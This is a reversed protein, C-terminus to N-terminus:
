YIWNPKEAVLADVTDRLWPELNKVMYFAPLLLNDEASILGEKVATKVLDTNPYIRIGLTFKLADLPLTDVFFLSEEVTERSEGPGGLMLFGMQRIGHDAFLRCATRIEERGFRKNMAHLINEAGSEFGLSVETCGARKMAKVLSLPLKGPYIISRWTIGLDADAIHGCLEEAYTPPLNFINDVFFIKSFGANRWRRLGKVVTQPSRRRIQRGEIASTSCYSCNLPCGRRTQFPLWYAEPAINSVPMLSPEPLPYADLEKIFVREKQLGKEKM